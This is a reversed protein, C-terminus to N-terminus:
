QHLKSNNIINSINQVTMNVLHVPLASWDQQSLFRPKLRTPEPSALAESGGVGWQM